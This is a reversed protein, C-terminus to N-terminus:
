VILRIFIILIKLIGVFMLFTLSYITPAELMDKNLTFERTKIDLITVIPHYDTKFEHARTKPNM